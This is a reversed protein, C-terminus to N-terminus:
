DNEAATPAASVARTATAVFLAPGKAAAAPPLPQFRAGAFGAAALPRSVQRGSFGLWVHGMEQRYEQRDHPLMDVILLKGGPRLVRAAERLVVIPDSLHHLVLVLTAADLSEDDIPLAELEGRRLDVNDFRSLRERAAELMTESGDVAVVRRVFPALSSSLPGSGCGLDGVVWDESLLGILAALYFRPGFLEDRLHDWRGAASAFFERSRTRRQALVSQLRRADQDAFATAGLEDRALEWLSGARVERDGEAPMQYLRRTGDPRSVIWGTDTLTKLHRSVTSQPLQLVSCIESVTLEQRELVLLIRCRLGDSLASLQDLIQPRIAVEM